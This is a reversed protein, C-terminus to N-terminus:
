LVQSLEQVRNLSMPLIYKKEGRQLQCLKEKRNVSKLYDLNIVISRGIRFFQDQPLQQVVSGLTTSTTQALGDVLCINTYNGDAECYLINESRIIEFGTRTNIRVRHNKKLRLFMDTRKQHELEEEELIHMRNLSYQLDEVKIPKLIYDVASLRIAKIAYTETQSVITLLPREGLEMLEHILEFGNKEGLNIDLFIMNPKQVMYLLLAEDVCNTEIVHCQPELEKLKENLNKRANIDADVILYTAM